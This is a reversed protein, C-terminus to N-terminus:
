RRAVVRRDKRREGWLDDEPMEVDSRKLGIREHPALVMKFTTHETSETKTIVEFSKARQEATRKRTMRISPVAPRAPAKEKKVMNIKPGPRPLAEVVKVDKWPKAAPALELHQSSMTLKKLKDLLEWTYGLAKTGSLHKVGGDPHPEVSSSSPLQPVSSGSSTTLQKREQGAAMLQLMKEPSELALTPQHKWSAELSFNSAEGSKRAFRRWLFDTQSKNSFGELLGLINSKLADMQQEYEGQLQRQNSELNGVQQTLQTNTEVLQAKETCLERIRSQSELLMSKEKELENQLNDVLTALERREEESIGQKHLLKKVEIIAAGGIVSALAFM